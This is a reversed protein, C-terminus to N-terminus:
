ARVILPRVDLKKRIAGEELLLDAFSQFGAIDREDIENGIQYLEPKIFPLTKEPMGAYKHLLPKYRDLDKRVLRTGESLVNIIKRVLAPHRALLKTTVVFAGGWFPDHIYRQCPNSVVVKVDGTAVAISVMPEFTLLADVNGSIVAQTQMPLALAVSQVDKDPDLGVKRLIYRSITKWQIGPVVGLRKGKLDSFGNIASDKRAVLGNNVLLTPKLQGGAFGFFRVTGPFQSEAILAIGAAVAGPGVDGRGSVFTDVVLAPSGFKNSVPEIGQAEFLKEELAVFFPLGDSSSIWSFDVKEAASASKGPLGLTWILAGGGLSAARAIAKRRNLLSSVEM